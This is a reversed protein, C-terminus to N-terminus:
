AVQDVAVIATPIEDAVAGLTYVSFDKSLNIVNSDQLRIVPSGYFRIASRNIFASHTAGLAGSMVVTVNAFSGRLGTVDLSGVNNNGQGSVLMVPRGDEGQLSMLVKFTAQDVVLADLGLGQGEFNVAADVVAELWGKYGKAASVTVKNGATRQAAQLAKYDNSVVTNIQKGAAAGLARMHTDLINVNSREIAQISLSTYGGFTEINASKTEITVKGFALDDGEKAQKTVQVSNNKLQAYEIAMGNTPLTGTSFLNRLPSAEEVIRTLDGVWAAKSVSDTTTGGAYARQMADYDAIASEDGSAIAKIVQGASRNDIAPERVVQMTSVERQLADVSDRVEDLDTRTVETMHDGESRVENIVAGEYAPFPVISVERADIETRRVSGDKTNEEAVPMFGISFRDLVGDQLLTYVEDGRSTKSITARITWGDEGDEYSVIKGIPEKHGYFLKVNGSPKVAGRAIVETYGGVDTPTEWPVAIGAVERKDPDALRVEFERVLLESM